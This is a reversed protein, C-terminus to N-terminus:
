ININFGGMFTAKPMPYGAIIEYRQALLNEGRVWIDIWKAAKFCGYLNWLVFDETKENAGTQTYLGNIYEITSSASWRGMNFSAGVHLKHQPAALVPNDMHLFSYNANVSWNRNIVYRVQSEVGMNDISGSNVNMPRGNVINTYIMNAGDIYFLNVGYSVGVETLSQSFSIEYNWLSEAKLDPNASAFMFMEKITPFRFGRSALLKLRTDRKMNFSVGVQPVWETGASSHHDIRVAADITMIRFLTQRIGVYGAVEDQTMDAIDKETGDFYANWAKGGFRFYDVGVTINNGEFLKLNQFASVGMMNDKSHFLYDKPTDDDDPDATYGDNIKHRGWNYFVSISGSSRKYENKVFLSAMGRTIRQDADLLLDYTEGPNSANFHTVNVDGGLQWKDSIDYGLKVYGGYQEFGMQPRHGDTRNYSGSVLSAFKGKRVRNSIESQFTNFSGYGANIDTAVGDDSMQRTVINVVGGMANSGYLASAPGRLVEVREAMMSQYADAVPHGMIGMYQPHGDVLVMLQGSNSSIGRISMNGAAGGSVGYGMIGRSTSFFGPVESTIVPLLYPSNRQEFDSRDLISITMPLHRVDTRNRTGTVVVEDLSHQGTVTDSVIAAIDAADASFPFFAVVAFLFRLIGKEMM